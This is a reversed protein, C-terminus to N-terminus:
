RVTVAVEGVLGTAVDMLRVRWAGAADSFPFQFRLPRGDAAFIKERNAVAKGDPAVVELRYVSGKRLGKTALNVFDGAAIETRDLAVAPASQESSFASFLRFPVEIAPLEVKATRGFFGKGVEYVYADKRLDITVDRGCMKSATKFGFVRMDGLERVRFITQDAPLGAIAEKNVIGKEALIAQLDQDSSKLSFPKWLGKLPAEKRYALFDDMLGPESDAVILGGKKAFAKLAAVEEDSLACAGPLFVVKFGELKKLHRKTIFDVAYGHRYCFRVLAVQGGGPSVFEDVLKAAHNSAHSYWIAFGDNRFPTHLLLQAQGRRIEKLYPLMKEVYPAFSYDGAFAGQSGGPQIAFWQDANLTGTLVYEWQEVPFGDRLCRFYGGWWIGRVRDVAFNRLLEDAVLSRYPGWYELKEVTQELDAGHSGEAGVRAKPDVKKIENALMVNIDSYMKEVYQVHDFYSPWDKEAQAQQHTKHCASAFDTANTGHVRNFKAITGYKAQLFKAFPEKDKPGNCGDISYGNEDGLNWVCVGYKVTNTVHSKMAEAVIAKVEPDYPNVEGGLKNVRDALPGRWPTIFGLLTRFNAGGNKAPQLTVAAVNPVSRANFLASVNGHEGLNSTYGFEDIVQPALLPALNGACQLSDWSILTYDEFRHNPFYYYGRGRAIVNTAADVIEAKVLAALTPFPQVAAINLEFGRNIAVSEGRFRVQGYPMDCVEYRIKSGKPAPREYAFVLPVHPSDEKAVNRTKAVTFRGVRATRAFGFSLADSVGGRRKAVVDCWYDGDPLDKLPVAIGTLPGTLEVEGSAVFRNDADRVRWEAVDSGFAAGGDNVKAVVSVYNTGAGYAPKTVVDFPTELTIAPRKAKVSQIMRFFEAQRTEYNAWWEPTVERGLGWEDSVVVGKGLRRYSLQRGGFVLKGDPKNGKIGCYSWFRWGGGLILLGMGEDRVRRFLETRYRSPISKTSEIAFGNLVVVDPNEALLTEFQREKEIHTGGSVADEWIGSAGFNGPFYLGKIPFRTQLEMMDRLRDFAVIFLVKTPDGAASEGWDLHPTRYKEFSPNHRFWGNYGDYGKPPTFDYQGALPLELAPVPEDTQCCTYFNTTAQAEAAKRESEKRVALETITGEIPRVGDSDHLYTTGGIEIGWETELKKSLLDLVADPKLEKGDSFYLYGFNQPTTYGACPSSCCLIWKHWQYRNHDFMWLTGPTPAPRGHFDGWPVFLEIEFRDDFIKAASVCGESRWDTHVNAADMRWLTYHRGTCSLDYKYFGVGSCDPDFYIEGGDDYWISADWDKLHTKRLKSVDEEWNRIGVYVGKADYMVTCETKLDVRPPNPVDLKYYIKNPVGKAWCADTLEGDIVPATEAPMATMFSIEKLGDASLSGAAVAAVSMMLLTKM